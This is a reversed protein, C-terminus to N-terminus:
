EGPTLGWATFCDGLISDLALSTEQLSLGADRCAQRIQAYQVPGFIEAISVSLENSPVSFVLDGPAEHPLELTLDRFKITPAAGNVEQLAAAGRGKKSRPTASKTPAPM